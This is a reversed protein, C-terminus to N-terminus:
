PVPDEPSSMETAEKAVELATPLYRELIAVHLGCMCSRSAEGLAGLAYGAVFASLIYSATFFGAEKALSELEVHFCLPCRIPSTVRM